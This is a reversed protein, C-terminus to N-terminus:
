HAAQLKYRRRGADAPLCGLICERPREGVETRLLDWAAAFSVGLRSDSALLPAFWASTVDDDFSSAGLM